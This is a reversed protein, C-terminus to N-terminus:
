CKMFPSLFHHNENTETEDEYLINQERSVTPKKLFFLSEHTPMIPDFNLM